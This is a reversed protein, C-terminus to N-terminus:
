RMLVAIALRREFKTWFQSHQMGLIRFIGAVADHSARRNAPHEPHQLAPIAVHISRSRAHAAIPTLEPQCARQSGRCTPAAPWGCSRSRCWSRSPARPCPAAWALGSLACPVNWPCIATSHCVLRDEVLGLLSGTLGIVHGTTHRNTKTQRNTPPLRLCVFCFPLEVM